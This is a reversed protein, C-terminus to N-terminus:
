GPKLIEIEKAETDEEPKKQWNESQQVIETIRGGNSAGKHGRVTCPLCKM